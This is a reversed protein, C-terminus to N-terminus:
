LKTGKETSGGPRKPWGAIFSKCKNHSSAAPGPPTERAENTAPAIRSSLTPNFRPFKKNYQAETPMSALDLPLLKLAPKLTGVSSCTTYYAGHKHQRTQRNGRHM